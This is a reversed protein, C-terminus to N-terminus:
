EEQRLMKVLANKPFHPYGGKVWNELDVRGIASKL